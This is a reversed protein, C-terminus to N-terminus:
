KTEWKMGLAKYVCREVFNPKDKSKVTIPMMDKDIVMYPSICTNSTCLITAGNVGWQDLRNGIYAAEKRKDEEYKLCPAYDLDLEIQETLPYFYQISLQQM